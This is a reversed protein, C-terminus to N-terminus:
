DLMMRGRSGYRGWDYWVEGHRVGRVLRVDPVAAPWTRNISAVAALLAAALPAFTTLAIALM